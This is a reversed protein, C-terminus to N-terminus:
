QIGGTVAEAFGAAWLLVVLAYALFDLARLSSGVAEAGLDDANTDPTSTSRGNDMPAFTNQQSINM